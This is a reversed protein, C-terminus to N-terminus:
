SSEEEGRTGALAQQKDLGTKKGMLLDRPM